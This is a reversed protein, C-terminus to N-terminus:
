SETAAKSITELLTAIFPSCNIIRLYESRLSVLERAVQDNMYEVGAMDLIITRETGDRHCSCAHTLESFADHSVTGDLRLRVTNGNELNETIKLM